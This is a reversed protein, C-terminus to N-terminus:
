PDRPPAAVAGPPLVLPMSPSARRSGETGASWRRMRRARTSASWRARPPPFSPAYVTPPGHTTNLTQNSPMSLAHALVRAAWFGHACPRALSHLLRAVPTHSALPWRQSRLRCVPHSPAAGKLTARPGRAARTCMRHPHITTPPTPRGNRRPGALQPVRMTTVPNALGHPTNSRCPTADRM